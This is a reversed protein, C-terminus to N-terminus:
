PRKLRLVTFTWGEESGPHEVFLRRLLAAAEQAFAPDGYPGFVQRVEERRATVLVWKRGDPFCNPCPGSDESEYVFRECGTCQTPYTNNM